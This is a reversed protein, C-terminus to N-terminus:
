NFHDILFDRHFNQLLNEPTYGLITDVTTYVEPSMGCPNIKKVESFMKEDFILNLANM